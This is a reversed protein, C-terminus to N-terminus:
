ELEKMLMAITKENCHVGDYFDSNSLDYVKPDLNGICTLGKKKALQRFYTDATFVINYFPDKKFFDYVIPHYPAMFLVVKINKAQLYDIFKEFITKYKPSLRTFDHFGKIPVAAIESEANRTVQEPTRDRYSSEYMYSGDPRKTAMVNTPAKSTKLKTDVGRLWDVVSQQFYSLSLLELYNEYDSVSGKQHVPYDDKLELKALFAAYEDGFKEWRDMRNFENLLWPDLGIIVQKPTCNKKDFLQFVSLMDEMCGASLSGNYFSKSNLMESNIMLTKSSGLALTEPCSSLSKINIKQFNREDYNLINTVNNGQQLHASLETEYKGGKFLNAPDQKYNVFVVFLPLPLLFSLKKLFTKM